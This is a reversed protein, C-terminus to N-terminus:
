YKSVAVLTINFRDVLSVSDIAGAQSGTGNPIGGIIIDVM